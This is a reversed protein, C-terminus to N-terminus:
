RTATPFIRFAEDALVFVPNALAAGFVLFVGAVALIKLTLPLTQDQIQTVGQFLAVIFGVAAAVLLPPGASKAAALAALTMYRALFEETM